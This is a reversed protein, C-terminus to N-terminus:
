DEAAQAGSYNSNVEEEIKRRRADEKADREEAM